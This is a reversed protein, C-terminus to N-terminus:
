FRYTLKFRFNRGDQRIKDQSHEGSGLDSYKRDFLNYVSASLDLGRVVNPSTVTLNSIFFSGTHGGALTKRQSTFQQELGGFLQDGYLPAVLNFKVLHTAANPQLAGTDLDKIQQLAYSLRGRLGGRWQGEIELEVGRGQLKKSNQFVLLGDNPDIEQTILDQMRKYYLNLNGWLEMGLYQQWVLEASRITEATLSTNGKAVGPQNWYLEYANPARFAQGYIAKVVTKEWPKYVLAIRPNVTGGFLKYRDYRLGANLRLDKVIEFEDQLYVAWNLNSRRENLYSAIDFNFQDIQFNYQTESGLIVKHSGFLTKTLQWEGGVWRADVIDNNTVWQPSGPMGYDYAYRGKYYYSDYYLRAKVGLDNAFSHEYRLDAFGRKDVTNSERNFLADYSATPIEKFRNVYGGELSFGAYALKAFYSGATEGDLKRAVGFNTSPDNFEKYFLSRDGGSGYRTGSLLLDVGSDFRQGYSFRGQYTSFRGGAAAAEAGALDKGSKTKVNIIGAFANTGYLSSGSGRLVEVREILDVDVLFDHGLHAQNYVSDNLRHGDVLLLYSSNFDGPRAFGRLGLYSYNRDYNVTVGRVSRLIEALTRYGYRKIDDSTVISVSAPAEILKQEFKSVSEIRLEMLDEISLKSLDASAAASPWATAALWLCGGLLVRVIHKWGVQMTLSGRM